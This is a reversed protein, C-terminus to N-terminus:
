LDANDADDADLFKGSINRLFILCRSALILSFAGHGYEFVM